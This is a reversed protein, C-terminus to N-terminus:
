FLEGSNLFNSLKGGYAHLPREASVDEPSIGLSKALRTVLATEVIGGAAILTEASSLADRTPDSAGSSSGSQGDAKRLLCFKSDNAWPTFPMISRLIEGGVIGTTLQPPMEYDGKITGAIAALFIHHIEDEKIAMKM